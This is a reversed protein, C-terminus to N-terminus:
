ECTLAARLVTATLVWSPHKFRSDANAYYGDLDDKLLPPDVVAGSWDDACLRQNAGRPM